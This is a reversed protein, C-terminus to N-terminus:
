QRISGDAILEARIDDHRQKRMEREVSEGDFLTELKVFESETLPASAACGGALWESIDVESWRALRGGIITPKPMVGKEVFHLITEKDTTFEAAIQELDYLM